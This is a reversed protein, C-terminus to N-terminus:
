KELSKIFNDITEKLIYSSTYISSVIGKNPFKGIFISSDKLLEVAKELNKNKFPM